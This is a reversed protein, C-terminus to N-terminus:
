ALAIKEVNAWINNLAAVYSDTFTIDKVELVDARFAGHAKLLLYAARIRTSCNAGVEVVKGSNTVIQESVQGRLICTLYELVEEAKAIKEDAIHKLQEDIAARVEPNGLLKHGTRNATAPAYGSRRAADTANLTVIYELVFRRQKDTM